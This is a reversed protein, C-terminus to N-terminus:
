GRTLVPSAPLRVDLVDLDRTDVQALVTEAARVKATLDVPPGFRVTGRPVLRLGVEGGQMSVAADVRSALAPSLAVVLRLVGAASALTSGPPGPPDVGEVAVLGAPRAPVVELVRGDGDLVAWRNGDASTAARPQREQLSVLVTAPWSRRVTARAVWPLTELRRAAGASDVDVMAMGTRLRAARLVDARPTRVAGELEVRDVDLLPSRTAVWGGATLLVFALLAILVRLRRRGARRQVEIRRRRIRPDMPTFVPSPPSISM